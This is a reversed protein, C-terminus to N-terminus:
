QSTSCSWEPAMVASIWTSTIADELRCMGECELPLLKCTNDVYPKPPYRLYELATEAVCRHQARRPRLSSRLEFGHHSGSHIKSGDSARNAAPIMGQFHSNRTSHGDSDALHCGCCILPINSLCLPLHSLLAEPGSM